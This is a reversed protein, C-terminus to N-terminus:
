ESKYAYGKRPYTLIIKPDTPDEEFWKRFKVMFNDINRSSVYVDDGWINKILEARTVIKNPNKLFYILVSAEKPTMVFKEGKVVIAMLDWNITVNGIKSPLPADHRKVFYYLLNKIKILFQEIEFPKVIYDIAGAEYAMKVKEEQFLASIFLIPTHANEQKLKQAYTIGNIGPLMIDLILLDYVVTGKKRELQEISFYSDVIFGESQLNLVLLERISDDDEILAIQAGNKSDRNNM